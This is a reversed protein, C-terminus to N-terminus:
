QAPRLHLAQEILDAARSPGDQQQIARQLAQAAQLYSPDRLVLTVAKRLRQPTLRRRPVVVCAGRAKVRAAVGPQDNGLPIAVLPVGESLSELLRTSAAHTRSLRSRPGSCSRWNPLMACWWRIAEALKGLRAPDIGGGLSILLQADLPACAEAIARFIGEAGNQLTGLSAYILPRGDLREWPFEMAPRQKAHVFPGTYHLGAPSRGGVEFELVQPMQAIQLPPLADDPETYAKLGWAARHQDVVKFIPAATRLLLKMGLKNRLRSLRGQGAAWGFWFPPYRDDNVMPPILAISIWPLGLHEAVNGAFEAQDVLLADVKASRVAEPGDRLIMRTTNRVRDLTFRLAALGTLGAMHEDLRKLTGPPYDQTGIQHFEVGAARVRSETDAIGFLVVQHGRLQLSHALATMPNIHGTGPYCFAGLRAM